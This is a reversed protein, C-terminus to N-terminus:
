SLSSEMGLVVLEPPSRQLCLGGGGAFMLFMVPDERGYHKQPAQVADQVVVTRKSPRPSRWGLRCPACRLFRTTYSMILMAARGVGVKRSRLDGVPHAGAPPLLVVEFVGPFVEGQVGEVAVAVL